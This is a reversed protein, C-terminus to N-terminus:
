EFSDSSLETSIYFYNQHFKEQLKVFYLRLKIARYSVSFLDFTAVTDGSGPDLITLERIDSTKLVGLERKM